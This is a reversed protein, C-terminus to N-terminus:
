IIHSIIRLKKRATVAREIIKVELPLILGQDILNALTFEFTAYLNREIKRALSETERNELKKGSIELVFKPMLKNQFVVEYVHLQYDEIKKNKAKGIAEELLQNHITMGFVRLFDYGMRGFVEITYPRGCPCKRKGWSIADGTKYRILPLACKKLTTLVLDGVQGERVPNGKEDVIEYLYFDTDPHLYRPPLKTMFQCQFGKNVPNETGGFRFYFFANTFYDKFFNLRQESTMEGGLSIFKIKSLDYVEKLFPIFFHLASPTTTIGEVGAAVFLKAATALDASDGFLIKCKSLKPHSIWERSVSNMRHLNGLLMVSSVTYQELIGAMVNDLKDDIGHDMKAVILPNGTTGSTMNWQTVKERPVFLRELPAVAIIDTRTLFPLKTFDGATKIESLNIGYGGYFNKYFYSSKNNKVFVLTKKISDFKVERM